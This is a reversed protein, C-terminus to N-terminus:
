EETEETAEQALTTLGVGYERGQVIYFVEISIVELETDNWPENTMAWRYGPWDEGFDGEQEGTLWDETLVVETLKHDALEAAVRKRDAVVGARNAITLGQFAVPIIIAMFLM